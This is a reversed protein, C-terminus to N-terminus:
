IARRNRASLRRADRDAKCWTIRTSALHDGAGYGQDRHLDAADRRFVNDRRSELDATQWFEEARAAYSEHSQKVKEALEREGPLTINGLETECAKTFSPCIRAM